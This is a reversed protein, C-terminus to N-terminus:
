IQMCGMAVFDGSDRPGSKRSAVCGRFPDETCEFIYLYM